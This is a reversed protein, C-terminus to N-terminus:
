SAVGTQDCAQCPWDIDEDRGNSGVTTETFWGDGECEPCRDPELEGIVYLHGANDVIPTANVEAEFREHPTTM